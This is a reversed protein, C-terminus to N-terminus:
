GNNEYTIGYLSVERINVVGHQVHQLRVQVSGAAITTGPARTGLQNSIRSCVSLHYFIIIM